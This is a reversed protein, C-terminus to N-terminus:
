WNRAGNHPTSGPHTAAAGGPSAARAPARPPRPTAAPARPEPAPGPAGPSPTHTHPPARPPSLPRRRENWHRLSAKTASPPLLPQGPFPSRPLLPRSESPNPLGPSGSDLSLFPVQEASGGGGNSLARDKPSSPSVPVLPPRRRPNSPDLTRGESLTKSSSPLPPPLSKSQQGVARQFPQTGPSPLQLSATSSRSHQPCGAHQDGPSGEPAPAPCGGRARPGPSPPRAPAPAKPLDRAEAAGVRPGRRGSVRSPPAARTRARPDPPM